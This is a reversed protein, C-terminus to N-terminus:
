FRTQSNIREFYKKWSLSKQVFMECKKFVTEFADWLKESYSLIASHLCTKNLAINLLLYFESQSQSAKVLKSFTIGVRM